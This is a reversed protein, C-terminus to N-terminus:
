QKASAVTPTWGAAGDDVAPGRLDPRPAPAKAVSPPAPQPQSMPRPELMVIRRVYDVNAAANDAPLDRAAVLRAEDYKGQLGLVLALNQSVRADKRIRLPRASSCHSPRIPTARWPM